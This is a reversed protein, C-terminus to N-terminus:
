VTWFASVITTSSEEHVMGDVAINQLYEGVAAEEAPSLTKKLRARNTHWQVAKEIPRRIQWQEIRYFLEPCYGSSWLYDFLNVIDDDSKKEFDSLELLEFVGSQIKDRRRTPKEIFCFRKSCSNMKDLTSFDCIAPTLHAFVLDFATRFGLADIDALAWDCCNFKTNTLTLSKAQQKAFEIMKPSIDTGVVAKMLPAMAFSYIGSGCGVDLATMTDNLPAKEAVLKLFSNSDFSPIDKACFDEAVGDWIVRQTEGTDTPPIVWIKKLEDLGM